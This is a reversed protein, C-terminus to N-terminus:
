SHFSFVGRLTILSEVVTCLHIMDFVFSCLMDVVMYLMRNLTSNGATKFVARVRNNEAKRKGVRFGRDRYKEGIM